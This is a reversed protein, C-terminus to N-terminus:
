TPRAPNKGAGDIRVVAGDGDGSNSDPMNRIYIGVGIIGAALVLWVLPAKSRPRDLDPFNASLAGKAPRKKISAGIPPIEPHLPRKSAPMKEVPPAGSAPVSSAKESPASVPASLNGENGARSGPEDAKAPEKAAPAAAPKEVAPAPQVRARAPGSDQGLLSLVESLNRPRSEPTKGLCGAILKEWSAPVPTTNGAAARVESVPAPVSKRIQPVIDDGTFPPAGTLLEHLLVGFGYIDDGACPREGDLQQPSLYALRAAAGKALGSRELSNLVVRSVGFNAALLGGNPRLYLNAPSLDRHFLQIRHADSLTEALQAIWPQVHEPDLCGKRKLLAQLSEGEFADM